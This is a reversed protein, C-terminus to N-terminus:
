QVPSQQHHINHSNYIYLASQHHTYYTCIHQQTVQDIGRSIGTSGMTNGIYAGGGWDGNYPSCFSMTRLIFAYMRGVLVYGWSYTNNHAVSPNKQKQSSPPTITTNDLMYMRCSLHHPIFFIGTSFIVTKNVLFIKFM